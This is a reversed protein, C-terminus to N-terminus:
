PEPGQSPRRLEETNQTSIQEYKERYCPPFSSAACKLLYLYATEVPLPVGRLVSAVSISEYVISGFTMAATSEPLTSTIENRAELM